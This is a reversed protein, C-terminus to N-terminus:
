RSPIEGKQQNELRKLQEDRARNPDPDNLIRPAPVVPLLKKLDEAQEDTVVALFTLSSDAAPTWPIALYVKDHSRKALGVLSIADISLTGPHVRIIVPDLRGFKKSTEKLWQSAELFSFERGNIKPRTPKDSTIEIIIAPVIGGAVETHGMAMPFIVLFFGLLARM